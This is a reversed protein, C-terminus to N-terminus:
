TRRGLLQKQHLLFSHTYYAMLAIVDKVYIMMIYKTICYRNMCNMRTEVVLCQHLRSLEASLLSTRLQIYEMMLRGASAHRYIVRMKMGTFLYLHSVQVVALLHGFHEVRFNQEFYYLSFEEDKGIDMNRSSHAGKVPETQGTTCDTRKMHVQWWYLLLLPSLRGKPQKM